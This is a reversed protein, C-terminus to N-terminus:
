KKGGFCTLSSISISSLWYTIDKEIKRGRNKLLCRKIDLCPNGNFVCNVAEIDDQFIEAINLVSIESPKRNLLFGGGRGRVSILINRKSLTQMIKRLLAKPIKLSEVLEAVTVVKGVKAIYVLSRIAYNTNRNILKM